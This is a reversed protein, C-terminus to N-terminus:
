GDKISGIKGKFEAVEKRLRVYQFPFLLFVLQTSIFEFIGVKKGIFEKLRVLSHRSLSTAGIWLFGSMLICFLYLLGAQDAALFSTVLFVFLLFASIAILGCSCYVM